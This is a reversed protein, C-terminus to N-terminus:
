VEARKRMNENSSLMSRVSFEEGIVVIRRKCM